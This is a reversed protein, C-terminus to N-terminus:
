RAALGVNGGHLRLRLSNQYYAVAQYQGVLIPLEILQKDNLTASLTQWTADSIMADDYLEDTAQLIARDHESWGPADAGQTIREIEEGSIGVKKAVLVHEGWEYPAQCLWGIRLVALERDRPTLTGRGLLQIGVDTQVVFLDAHRLMTLVIESLAAVELTDALTSHGAEDAALYQALADKGRSDLVTNVQAMRSLIARLGDSPGDITLPLLRPGDGLIAATREAPEAFSRVRQAGRDRRNTTAATM